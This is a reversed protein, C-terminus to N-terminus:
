DNILNILKLDQNLLNNTFNCPDNKYQVDTIIYSSSENNRKYNIIYEKGKSLKHYSSATNESVNEMFCCYPDIKTVENMKSGVSLKSFDMKEHLTDACWGDIVRGEENYMIFGYLMESKSTKICHISYYVEGTKRLLPIGIEKEVESIYISNTIRNYVDKPINYKKFNDYSCQVSIDLKQTNDVRKLIETNITSTETSVTPTLIEGDRKIDCSTLFSQGIVFVTIILLTSKLMKKKM